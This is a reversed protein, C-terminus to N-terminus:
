DKTRLAGEKKKRSPTIDLTGSPRGDDLLEEVYHHMRENDKKLDHCKQRLTFHRRYLIMLLVVLVLLAALSVSILKQGSALEVDRKEVELKTNEKKLNNIDYRIQLERYAEESKSDLNKQLLTNYERLSSLLTADDHASDAAEILMRMLELHINVDKNAAIARSLKPVAEAYHGEAMLRYATPRGNEHFDEYVEQDREALMACKAYLEKVQDMDLGRYNRLMRRYCIYYYRNYNRYRRGQEKYRKDLADIVGLLKQDSEIAKDYNGNITHNIAAMTYFLNKIYYREEPLKDVMNELRTMYELYLNSKSSKGLFVVVRYLDLLDQYYDGTPIMDAKAYKLLIKNFDEAAVYTSENIARNVNIFLRVGKRHEPDTIRESQAVLWQLKRDDKNYLVAMQPIMEELVPQNATRLAIELIEDGVTSKQKQPTLDYVDLLIRISDAPTKASPLTARVEQPSPFTDAPAAAANFPCQWMLAAGAILTKIFHFHRM